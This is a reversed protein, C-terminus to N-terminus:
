DFFVPIISLLLLSAMSYNFLRRHHDTRLYRRLVTGGLTWTLMSGVTVAFSIAALALVQPVLAADVITYTAVASLAAVWGKVNVWQFAVAQWFGLPRATRRGEGVAAATAIRWALYLLYVICVYKLILHLSPVQTFVEALGLGVLLLMLPYGLTVGSIHPVTAKFGFNVGSTAVMINNPGPTFGMSAMFPVSALILATPFAQMM